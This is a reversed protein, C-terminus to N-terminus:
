SDRWLYKSNQLLEDKTWNEILLRCFFQCMKQMGFRLFTYREQKDWHASCKKIDALRIKGHVM